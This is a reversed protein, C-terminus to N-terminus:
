AHATQTGTTSVSYALTGDPKEWVLWASVIYSEGPTLDAFLVVYPAVLDESYTIVGDFIAAPDQDLFAVASAGVLTWGDPAAPPVVTAQLTGAAGPASLVVSDAPLGGRAGPSGIFDGMDPDGRLVRLNEGVFKNMGTFPRGAAFADWPEKLGAPALKWMERLLAFTTRTVTQATTQPNAPVVHQRAYAIGRWAGFVASKGIQGRAGFSLLPGKVKAM